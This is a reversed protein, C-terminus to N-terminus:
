FNILREPVVILDEPQVAVDKSTEGKELIDQVDVTVTEADAGARGSKRILKVKRKNAYEGFGGARLVARSVTYNEDAPIEQPGQSRVAGMVYIRGKSVTRSAIVDLGLIVTAERYYTQQLSEKIEHALSKCTKGAARVRGIYPVEMEGSDTVLLMRAPDEDEIVRFSLQDGASLKQKDDLVGMTNVLSATAAVGEGRAKDQGMAHAALALGVTMVSMWVTATKMM